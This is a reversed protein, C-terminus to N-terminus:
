PYTTPGEGTQRDLIIGADFTGGSLTESGITYLVRAYREMGHPIRIRILETNATLLAKGLAATAHLTTPSGFATTSDTQLAITVTAAGDSTVADVVRCFFEGDSGGATEGM